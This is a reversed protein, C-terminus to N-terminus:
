SAFPLTGQQATALVVSGLLPAMAEQRDAIELAMAKAEDMGDLWQGQDFDICYLQLTEPNVLLNPSSNEAIVAAADQSDFTHDISEARVHDSVGGLDLKGDLNVGQSTRANAEGLASYMTKLRNMLEVVQQSLRPDAKQEDTLGSISVRPVEDQVMYEAYRKNRGEVVQGLVFSTDPVFDGLFRKLIEYKNKKYLLGSMAAERDDALRVKHEKATSHNIKLVKGTPIRLHPKDAHGVLQFVTNDQGSGMRPGLEPGFPMLEARPKSKQAM